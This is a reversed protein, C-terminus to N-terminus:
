KCGRKDENRCERPWDPSEAYRLMDTYILLDLKDVTSVHNLRSKIQFRSTSQHQCLDIPITRMRCGQHKKACHYYDSDNRMSIKWSKSCLSGSHDSQVHERTASNVQIQSVFFNFMKVFKLADFLFCFEVSFLISLLYLATTFLIYLHM